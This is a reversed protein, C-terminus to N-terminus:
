TTMEFYKGYFFYEHFESNLKYKYEYESIFQWDIEDEIM